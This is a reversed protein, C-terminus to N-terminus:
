GDAGVGKAAPGLDCRCRDSCRDEGDLYDCKSPCPCGRSKAAQEDSGAVDFLTQQAILNLRRRLDDREAEVRKSRLQWYEPTLAREALVERLRDREERVDALLAQATQHEDMEALLDRHEQALEAKTRDHQAVEVELVDILRNLHDGVIRPHALNTKGRVDERLAKKIREVLLAGHKLVDHRWTRLEACDSRLREIEADRPDPGGFQECYSWVANFANAAMDYWNLELDSRGHRQAVQRIVPVMAQIAEEGYSRGRRLVTHRVEPASAGGATASPAGEQENTV